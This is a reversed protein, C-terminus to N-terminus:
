GVSDQRPEEEEERRFGALAARVSEELLNFSLPVPVRLLEAGTRPTGNPPGGVTIVPIASLVVGTTGEAATDGPGRAAFERDAILLDYRELELGPIRFEGVLAVDVEVPLERMSRIARCISEALGKDPQLVLIRPTSSM